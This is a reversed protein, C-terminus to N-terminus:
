KALEAQCAALDAQTKKHILGACIIGALIVTVTFIILDRLM